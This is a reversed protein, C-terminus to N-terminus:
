MERTRSTTALQSCSGYARMTEASSYGRKVVKESENRESIWKRYGFCKDNSCCGWCVVLSVPWEKLPEVRMPNYHWPNRPRPLSLSFYQSFEVSASCTRQLRACCSILPASWVSRTDATHSVQATAHMFPKGICIWPCHRSSLTRISLLPGTDEWVPIQKRDDNAPGGVASSLDRRRNNIIGCSQHDTCFVSKLFRTDEIVSPHSM